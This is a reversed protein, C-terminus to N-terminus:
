TIMGGRSSSKSSSIEYSFIAFSIGFFWHLTGYRTRSMPLSSRLSLSRYKLVKLEMQRRLATIRMELKMIKRMFSSAGVSIPVGKVEDNSKSAAAVM